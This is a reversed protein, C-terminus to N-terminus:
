HTLRCAVLFLVEWMIASSGVIVLLTMGLSAREEKVQM